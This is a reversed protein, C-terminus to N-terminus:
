VTVGLPTPGDGDLNVWDAWPEGPGPPAPPVDVGETTMSAASLISPDILATEVAATAPEFSFQFQELATPLSLTRSHWGGGAGGRAGDGQPVTAGGYWSLEAAGPFDLVMSTSPDPGPRGDDGGYIYGKTADGMVLDLGVGGQQQQAAAAPGEVAAGGTRSSSSSSSSADLELALPSMSGSKGEGGEEKEATPPLPYSVPPTLLPSAAQTVAPADQQRQRFRPMYGGAAATMQLHFPQPYSHRHPQPQQQTTQQGQQHQSAWRSSLQVHPFHKAFLADVEAYRDARNSAPLYPNTAIVAATTGTTSVPLSFRRRAATHDEDESEYQEDGMVAERTIKLGRGTRKRRCESAKLASRIRHEIDRDARRSAAIYAREQNEEHTRHTKKMPLDAMDSTDSAPSLRKTPM